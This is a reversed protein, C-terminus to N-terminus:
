AGVHNVLGSLIVESWNDQLQQMFPVAVRMDFDINSTLWGDLSGVDVLQCRIDREQQKLVALTFYLLWDAGLILGMTIYCVVDSMGIIDVFCQEHWMSLMHGAHLGCQVLAAHLLPLEKQLMTGFLQGLQLHAAQGAAEAWAPWLYITVQLLILTHSKRRGHAQAQM